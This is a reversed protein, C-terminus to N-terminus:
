INKFYLEATLPRYSGKDKLYEVLDKEEIFELGQMEDDTNKEFIQEVDSKTKNLTTYFIFVVNYKSSLTIGLGEILEVDDIALGVEERMEKLQNEFIDSCNNVELEDPQLGGGILDIKRSSMSNKNRVGFIFFNDSTKILSATSVHFPQSETPIKSLDVNHTLGRIQSYKITSFFLEENEISELRYYTGDWPRAGKKHAEDLFSQWNRSISAELENDLTLSTKVHSINYTNRSFPKASLIKPNIEKNM